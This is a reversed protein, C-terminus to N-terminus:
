VDLGRERGKQIAEALLDRREYGDTQVVSPWATRNDAKPLLCRGGM